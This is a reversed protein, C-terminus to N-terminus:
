ELVGFEKLFDEYIDLVDKADAPSIDFDPTHVLENRIKHARWLRELARFDDSSLRELRDAMHEGRIGAERMADDACKDAEIIALIYSRPPATEANVRIKRWQEQIRQSRLAPKAGRKPRPHMVFKLRLKAARTFVAIFAAVILLDLFFFVARVGRAFERWPLSAIAQIINASADM